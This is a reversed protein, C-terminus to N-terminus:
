KGHAALTWLASNIASIEAVFSDNSSTIIIMDDEEPSLNEILDQKTKQDNELCDSSNNPFVFKSDKYFLTTAGTAGYLIAYDRQEMGLKTAHSYGRLLIAHNYKGPAIDCKKVNCQSSIIRLLHSIFNKGEDTLFTGSRTSDVFGEKRLHEIMTKVAGEGMHIKSCFEARSVYQESHLMQLARFIHPASFTLVKSGKRSVINQLKQVQLRPNM